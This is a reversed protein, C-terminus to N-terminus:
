TSKTGHAGLRRALCGAAAARSWLRHGGPALWPKRTTDQAWRLLRPSAATPVARDCGGAAWHPARVTPALQRCTDRRGRGQRWRPTWPQAQVLQAIRHHDVVAVAVAVAAAQVHPPSPPLPSRLPPRWQARGWPEQAFTSGTPRGRRTQQLPAPPRPHAPPQGQLHHLDHRHHRRRCPPPHAPPVNPPPQPALAWPEGGLIPSIM